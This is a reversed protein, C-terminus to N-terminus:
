LISGRFEANITQNNVGKPVRVEFMISKASRKIRGFWRSVSTTEQTQMKSGTCSSIGSALQTGQEVADNSSTGRNQPWRCRYNFSSVREGETTGDSTSLECEAASELTINPVSTIYTAFSGGENQREQRKDKGHLSIANSFLSEVLSNIQKCFSSEQALAFSPFLTVILVITSLYSKM